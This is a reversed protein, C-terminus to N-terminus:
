KELFNFPITLVTRYHVLALQLLYNLSTIKKLLVTRIVLLRAINNKIIQTHTQVHSCM